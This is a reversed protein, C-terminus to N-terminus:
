GPAHQGLYLVYQVLLPKDLNHEARFKAIYAPPCPREGCRGVVPDGPLAYVMVFIIFTVGLIVPIMQLLRRLIYTGM